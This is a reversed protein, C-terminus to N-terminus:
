SGVLCSHKFEPSTGPSTKQCPLQLTQCYRSWHGQQWQPDNLALYVGKELGLDDNELVLRGFEAFHNGSGSTGLQKWAKDKLSKVPHCFSWNEDMVGHNKPRSFSEGVGFRTQTELAIKFKEQNGEYEKFSIDFLTM